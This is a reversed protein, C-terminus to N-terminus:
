STGRKARRRTLEAEVFAESQEPTSTRGAAFDARAQEILAEESATLPRHPLREASVHELLDAIVLLDDDEIAHLKASIKAIAETRTM